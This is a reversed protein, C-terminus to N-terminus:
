FRQIIYKYFRVAPALSKLDVNEDAGHISAMQEDSIHFPAFRICNDSVASMFRSDSAGTMIYPSCATGPFVAVVAEEVLRFAKSNWDSLPSEVGPDLVEVELGYRKAAKTIAALSKERGQHHSYRMNGIVWAEDPIVNNGVSGSARTFAVTTKLLAAATPSSKGIVRKILPAFTEPDAMAKATLGEMAPAFRKLMECIVPSLQVDFIENRDIYSMFKGLRVLPTNKPPASAHGGASRAVFKLDACGKEGVGIMAYDGKAGGIPETLIMGGEDLVMEFRYGKEKLTRAITEAGEGMIEETCASEFWIDRPPVFGEAALEDAAQLMAWLPGKDDLTGRGWLRGDAVDASFPAHTWSGGAEVVDMHNMLLLGQKEPAPQERGPWRMLLSGDYDFVECVAFLSPFLERLLAHFGRFKEIDNNGQVSITEMRIMRSLAEIYRENM